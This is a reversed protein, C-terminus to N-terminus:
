RGPRWGGVRVGRRTVLRACGRHVHGGPATGTRNSMSLRSISGRGQTSTIGPDNRSRPLSFGEGRNPSLAVGPPYLGLNRDTGVGVELTTGSAKALLRRRRRGIMLDMPREFLDYVQAMRDYRRTVAAQASETVPDVPETM